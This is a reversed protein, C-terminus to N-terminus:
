MRTERILRLLEEPQGIIREAGAAALAQRSCCGWSVGLAHCDAAHATEMDIESDGALITERPTADLSIIIDWAAGPDPKRAVGPATGQVMDFTFPPFLDAIVQQAAPDPMNTLVATRVKLRKLELALELMGPYLRMYAADALTGDLDFIVCKFRM